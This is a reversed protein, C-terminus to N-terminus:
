NILVNDSGVQLSSFRGLWLPRNDDVHGVPFNMMIPYNTKEAAQLITEEVSCLMGEDVDIDSFQGVILGNIESMVGSLRLNQMMRDIHYHRECLDEIMLIVNQGQRHFKRIVPLLGFRTAQLGYLVSLNGGILVGDSQGKRDLPHSPIQYRLSQGNLAQRWMLLAESEDPLEALHKCMLGHISPVGQLCCWQHLETIDSFGILTPKHQKHRIDPLKDIIRQLGYGGRACLVIDVDPNTLAAILDDIREQDSGAFRGFRGYANRGVSVRFGWSKLRFAARDIYDNEVAGSPSIIQISKM